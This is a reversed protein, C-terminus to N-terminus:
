KKIAENYENRMKEFEEWCKKGSNRISMIDYKDIDKLYKGNLRGYRGTESFIANHLRVSCMQKVWEIQLWERLGIEKHKKIKFEEDNELLEQLAMKGDITLLSYFLDINFYKM